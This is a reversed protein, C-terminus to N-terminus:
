SGASPDAPAPTPPAAPKSPILDVRGRRVGRRENLSVVIQEVEATVSAKSGRKFGRILNEGQSIRYSFWDKGGSDDPAKAPEIALLRYAGEAEQAEASAAVQAATAPRGPGRPRGSVIGVPRVRQQPREAGHAVNTPSSRAAILERPIRPNLPTGPIDPRHRM